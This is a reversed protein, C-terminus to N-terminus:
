AIKVIILYGNIGDNDLFNVDNSSIIQINITNGAAPVQVIANGAIM